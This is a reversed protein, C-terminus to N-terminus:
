GVSSVHLSWLYEICEDTNHAFYDLSTNPPSSWVEPKLDRLAIGQQHMVQLGELIKKSINQVTEQPLPISIHKTLDGREFYLMAIYLAEPEELWGLFEM